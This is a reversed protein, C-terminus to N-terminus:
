AGLKKITANCRHQWAQFAPTFAELSVSVGKFGIGVISHPFADPGTHGVFCSDFINLLSHFGAPTFRWYDNPYGHIPFNMVSSMVLIGDKRLVRHMERVAQRPYEVHELTDICLATGVTEDPLDLQHLDLVVDVGAGPRMDSGVYDAAPFITRLNELEDDGQVQLSGFEYIPEHLSLTDRCVRVFRRLHPRM